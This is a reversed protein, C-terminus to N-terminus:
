SWRLYRCAVQRRTRVHAGFSLPNLGNRIIFVEYSAFTRVHAGFSLPNLCRDPTNRAVKPTRVHAGFSLPNLSSVYQM